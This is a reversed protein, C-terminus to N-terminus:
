PGPNLVEKFGARSEQIIASLRASARSAFVPHSFSRFLTPNTLVALCDIM